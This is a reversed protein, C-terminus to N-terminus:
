RTAAVRYKAAGDRYHRWSYAIWEVERPTVPRVIKFPNGYVLSGPPIVKGGPIMTGAGVLSGRGIVADDMVLSGMGIICDDEITCGHLIVSHGITVREGVRTHSRGGTMHIVANDQVNSDAGIEIEGEDGRLTVHPWVSAGAGIRVRGIVVASRHVFADPAAEPWHGDYCEMWSPRNM